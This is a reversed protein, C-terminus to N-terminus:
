EGKPEPIKELPAPTGPEPRRCRAVGLRAALAEVEEDSFVLLHSVPDYRGLKEATAALYLEMRDLGLEELVQRETVGPLSLPDSGSHDREGM